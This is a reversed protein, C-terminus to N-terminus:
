NTAGSLAETHQNICNSGTADSSSKELLLSSDVDSGSRELKKRPSVSEWSDEGVALAAAASTHSFSFGLRHLLQQVRVPMTPLAPVTNLCQSKELMGLKSANYMLFGSLALAYGGAENIPIHEEYLLVGLVITIINRFTGLIKMTLSSTNQIVAYAMFNVVVGLMSAIFFYHFNRLLLQFAGTTVMSYSEFCLSALFLWFASAPALVYQGEVVGFKLQQLLHQTLVLRIAESLISCFMVLLGLPNFQPSFTCTMATGISIVVVAYTTPMTPVEIGAAFASIMIVVPTFSKLMQIFGVDLILYVMNGLSLTCAHAFGVPLVRKYWMIGEVAETRQLTVYGIRVMLQATVGSLLIGLGSLFIPYPFNLTRLIYRNLMILALGVFIYVICITIAKVQSRLSM